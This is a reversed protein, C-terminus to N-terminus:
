AHSPLRYEGNQISLVVGCPYGYAHVVYIGAMGSPDEGMDEFYCNSIEINDRNAATRNDLVLCSGYATDNVYFQVNHYSNCVYSGAKHYANALTTGNLNITTKGTVASYSTSAITHVESRGKTANADYAAQVHGIVIKQGAVWASYDGTVLISSAGSSADDSMIARYKTYDAFTQEGIIKFVSGNVAIFGFIDTASSGATIALTNGGSFDWVLSGGARAVVNGNYRFTRNATADYVLTGGSLVDIALNDAAGTGIILDQDITVTHGNAIDVTDGNGPVHVGDWTDVNSWDGTQASTYDAM